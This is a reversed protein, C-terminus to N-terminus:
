QLQLFTCYCQLMTGIKEPGEVLNPYSYDRRPRPWGAATPFSLTAPRDTLFSLLWCFSRESEKSHVLASGDSVMSVKPEARSKKCSILLTKYGLLSRRPSEFLFRSIKQGCWWSDLVFMSASKIGCFFPVFPLDITPLYVISARTSSSYGVILVFSRSGLITTALGLNIKLRKQSSAIQSPTM